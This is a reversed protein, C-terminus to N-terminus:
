MKFVTDVTRGKGHMIQRGPTGLDTSVMWMYEKKESVVQIEYDWTGELSTLRPLFPKLALRSITKNITHFVTRKTSCPTSQWVSVNKQISEYGDTSPPDNIICLDSLFSLKSM